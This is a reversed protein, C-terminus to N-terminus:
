YELELEEVRKEIATRSVLFHKTLEVVIEFKTYKKNKLKQFQTTFETSPMLLAAAFRNARQEEESNQSDESLDYANFYTTKQTENFDFLYHGLEHAITFKRHGPNEKVNILIVKDTYYNEILNADITVVGSINKKLVAGFCKFGIREAITVIPIPYTNIKFDKLIRDAFEEIQNDSVSSFDYNNETKIEKIIECM